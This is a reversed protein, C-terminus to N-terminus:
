KWKPKPGYIVRDLDDIEETLKLGKSSKAEFGYKFQSGPLKAKGIIRACVACATFGAIGLSCLICHVTYNSFINGVSMCLGMLAAAVAVAVAAFIATKKKRCVPLSGTVKGTQGNVTYLFEEGQWNIRLLWLPVMAYSVKGKGIIIKEEKLDAELYDSLTKRMEKAIAEEYAAEIDLVVEPMNTDYKEAFYGSLFAPSFPKLKDFDYGGHADIYTYPLKESADVIIRDFEMEGSRYVHFYENRNVWEEEASSERFKRGYYYQHAQASNEFIWFPTYIGKVNEVPIKDFGKPLMPQKKYYEKLAAVADERSLEFPIVYDPSFVGSLKSKIIAHNNCYPCSTAVTSDYCVIKAGCSPCSYEKMEKVEEGNLIRYEWTGKEGEAAKWGDPLFSREWNSMKDIKEEIEDMKKNMLRDLKKRDYNTFCKPCYMMWDNSSDKLPTGCNVCEYFRIDEYPSKRRAM